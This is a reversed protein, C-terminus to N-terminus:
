QVIKVKVKSTTGVTYGTGAALKLVVTKKAAGGLDGQPIVKISKSAKGAKIKTTGSLAVYDTGNVASGKITYTVVVKNTQVASLTITFVGSGGSGLKATPTSATLTVVPATGVPGTSGSGVNLRYITGDNAPGGIQTTGYFNGDSGQVLAAAPGGGETGLGTFSYVTTVVGASTLQFVEGASNAGGYYTTGYFNGDKAQILAGDLIQNNETFSYLSTFVGAPTLQFVTGAGNAGTTETTGYFNGDSGQVLSAVPDAGATTGLAPFSYLTTYGGAPTLQFVTGAGHGGLRTTGYFNGDSAQIVGADPEAGDYGNGLSYLVMVVGAPTMQFVTGGGVSGGGKTTGYFNGDSGQILTGAPDQGDGPYGTFSHLTTLVGAPTIRFVTGNGTSNSDVYTTGGQTTTGYFNGDTGQVLGAGPFLGDPGSFSHLNTVVGAATIRFVTGRSDTNLGGDAATGYFNGDSGQVLSSGFLEGSAPTSPALTTLTATGQAWAMSPLVSLVGATILSGLVAHATTATRRSFANIVANLSLRFLTKMFTPPTSPDVFLDHYPFLAIRVEDVPSGIEATSNIM